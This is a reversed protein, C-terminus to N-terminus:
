EEETVEEVADAARQGAHAVVEWKVFLWVFVWFAVFWAVLRGQRSPAAIVVLQEVTKGAALSVLVSGLVERSFIEELRQRTRRRRDRYQKVTQNVQQKAVESTSDISGELRERM